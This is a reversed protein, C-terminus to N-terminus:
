HIPDLALIEILLAAILRPRRTFERFSATRLEAWGKQGGWLATLVAYFVWLSAPYLAVLYKAQLLLFLDSHTDTLDLCECPFAM